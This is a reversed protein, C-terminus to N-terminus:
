EFTLPKLIFHKFMRVRSIAVLTLYSCKEGAGLDIVLRELKKGQSKHITFAWSLNLPSKTCTFVVNGSPKTWEATITAIAVSGPYDELFAPMDPELHSFQVVIAEPFTQSQPGYSNMYVFDLVKGRSGNHLGVPTWSNSTLM